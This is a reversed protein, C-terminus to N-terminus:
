VQHGLSKVARMQRSDFRVILKRELRGNCTNLGVHWAWSLALGLEPWVISDSRRGERLNMSLQIYYQFDRQEPVPFM